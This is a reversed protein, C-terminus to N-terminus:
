ASAGILAAAGFLVGLGILFVHLLVCLTGRLRGHGRAAGVVAYVMGGVHLAPAILLFVTLAVGYALSSEEYSLRVIFSGFVLCFAFAALLLSRKYYATQSAERVVAEM